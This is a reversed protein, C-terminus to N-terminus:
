LNLLTIRLGSTYTYIESQSFIEGAGPAYYKKELNFLKYPEDQWKYYSEKWVEVVHYYLVGNVKLKRDVAKVTYTSKFADEFGSQYTWQAGLTAQTDLFLYQTTDSSFPLFYYKSGTNKVIRYVDSTEIIVHDAREWKSYFRFQQFTKENIVTDGKFVIKITDSFFIEKTDPMYQERLYYKVVGEEMPYYEGPLPTTRDDQPECGALLTLLLLIVLSIINTIKM